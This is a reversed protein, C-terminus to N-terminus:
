YYMSPMSSSFISSIVSGIIGIFVITLLLMVAGLILSILSLIYGATRFGSRNGAKKANMAFILGIVGVILSVIAGIGTFCFVVGVIGLVMSAIATGRAPECGPPPGGQPGYGHLDGPYPGPGNPGGPGAGYAGPGNPGGPGAGYAGPGDPGGPGAGYAGSGQPGPGGQGATRSRGYSGGPDPCSGNPGATYANGQTGLGGQFAGYAGDTYNRDDNGGAASADYTSNRVPGGANVNGGYKESGGGNDNQETHIDENM